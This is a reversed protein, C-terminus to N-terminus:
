RGRLCSVWTAMRWARLGQTSPSPMVFGLHEPRSTYGTNKLMVWDTFMNRYVGRVPFKFVLSSSYCLHSTWKTSWSKWNQSSLRHLRFRKNFKSPSELLSRKNIGPHQLPHLLCMTVKRKGRARARRCATARCPSPRQWRRQVEWSWLGLPALWHLSLTIM